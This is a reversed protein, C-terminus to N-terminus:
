VQLQEEDVEAIKDLSELDFLFLVRWIDGESWYTAEQKPKNRKTAQTGRINKTERAVELISLVKKAM